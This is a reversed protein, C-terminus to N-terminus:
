KLLMMRRATSFDGSQLRYIYVGSAVQKGAQDKGDWVVSHFGADMTEKLLTRVQQGVQASPKVE